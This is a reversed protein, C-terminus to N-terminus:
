TPEQDVREADQEDRRRRRRVEARAVLVAVLIPMWYKKSELVTRVWDPVTVDPLPLSPLPIRPLDPM